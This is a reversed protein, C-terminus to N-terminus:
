QNSYPNTDSNWTELKIRLSGDPQKEWITLYKGSEEMLNPMGPISISIKFKGIEVITNDCPDVKLTTAEFSKVKMGSAAMERASNRIAEIGELMKGQNPMSIADNTYLSLNKETNGAIMAQAMEHNLKTIKAKLEDNTQAFATIQLCALTILVLSLRITKTKM